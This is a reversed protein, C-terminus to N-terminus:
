SWEKTTYISIVTFLVWTSSRRCYLTMWHASTCSSPPSCTQHTRCTNRHVRSELPCCRETPSQLVLPACTWRWRCTLVEGSFCLLTQAIRNNLDCSIESQILKELAFTIIIQLILIFPDCSNSKKKYFNRNQASKPYLIRCSYPFHSNM